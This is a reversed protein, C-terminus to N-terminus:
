KFLKNAILSFVSLVGGCIALIGSIITMTTLAYTGVKDATTTTYGGSIVNPTKVVNQMGAYMQPILLIVVGGAIMLAGFVFCMLKRSKADKVLVALVLFFASIFVVLYAIFGLVTGTVTTSVGLATTTKGFFLEKFQILSDSNTEKINTFFMMVFVAIGMLISLAVCINSVGGFSKKSKRKAM